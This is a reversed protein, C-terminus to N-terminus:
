GGPDDDPLDAPANVNHLFSFEPDVKALAHEDVRAVRLAPDSLLAAAKRQGRALREEIVPACAPGYVAFLPELRGGVVPVVADASDDCYALLCELAAPTVWPMDGALVLLHRRQSWRLAAAIGALPGLGVARDALVPLGLHAFPAPDNACLAIELAPDLARLAALQRDLITRGDVVILPKTRGGLRTAAGGALIAAALDRRASV